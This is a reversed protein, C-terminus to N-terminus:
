EFYICGFDGSYGARQLAWSWEDPTHFARCTLQWYMLNMKERESRYGEVTIHKAGRGVREIEAAAKELEYNFLNHLINIYYVFDFEDNEYPLDTANGVRLQGRVEEKANEIAYISIDIGQVSVGPLAQTFEYLLFGKGCGVDLIRTGADLGYHAIMSDAVPRWRGDYHYGGFGYRRDGDWYDEGFQCAIEACSAKDHEIVRQVYDRQTSQHIAGIFDVYAM